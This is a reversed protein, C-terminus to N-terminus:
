GFSLHGIPDTLPFGTVERDCSVLVKRSTSSTGGYDSPLAISSVIDTVNTDDGPLSGIAGSLRSYLSRELSNDICFPRETRYMALNIIDTGADAATSAVALITSDSNYGPSFAIASVEAGPASFLTLNQNRWGGFSASVQLVWIQGTTTNDGWDATGIAVDHVLNSAVPYGNSIAICQITGTIAPLGTDTWTSGNDNSLYVKTRDNTVIAVYQPKDPAVAIEQAPLQAGSQSLASTIDTFTLGGNYSRHLRSNATDVAYVVDHSAAIRNVESPAVIIEGNISPKDVEAWKLVASSQAQALPSAAILVLM